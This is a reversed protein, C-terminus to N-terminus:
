GAFDPGMHKGYGAVMAQCRNWFEACICHSSDVTCTTVFAAFSRALARCLAPPYEKLATTKWQGLADRGISAAQPLHSTVRGKWVHEVFDPLNLTLISTPKPSKVGLLGQSIEHRVFGPLQCLLIALPTRWISAFHEESPPAPHELAGCGGIVYLLLMMHFSFLLLQNGVLVQRIERVALSSMGWIEEMTRLIRPGHRDEHASQVAAARAKSWTECPPGALYGIVFRRKVGEFWFRQCDPRTVDGWNRDLIVDVSVVHVVIGACDGVIADLFEQFDGPRRRGSFAHLVLRHAGFSAPRPTQELISARALEQEMEEIGPQRQQKTLVQLFDWQLPDIFDDLFSVFQQLHEFGFAQADEMTANAQLARLTNCCASWSTPQATLLDSLAQKQAEPNCQLLLETVKAYLEIDFLEVDRLRDEQPQPGHGPLPPVLGDHKHELASNETSGTGAAPAPLSPRNQLRLRCHSNVHLHAKLRGFTHYERLCAPCATTDFLWRLTSIQGHCRFMHAGEGGRSRFAKKCGLCGFFGFGQHADRDATGLSQDGIIQEDKLTSLFAAFSQQVLLQNQRQLAAHLFARRILGKWYPQHYRWLYRWPELNTAPDPMHTCTCIQKWLWQLDDVVIACWESDNHLVRWSVTGECQHLTGLYRLRVRRLLETPTPLQLAVCVEEDTWTADPSLKLLRKYLKIISTHLYGKSKIDKLHWSESGYLLRSLVLTQFLQVRRDLPLMANQFIHRRHANFTQHAMAVRRRMEKRHDGSHHLVGGLHVYEGVVSISRTSHEGVVTMTGPSNPGFFQAKSRRSGRGRLSFLLATKGKQLNPTMAHEELTDLLISSVVGARQIAAEADAARLVVTLDDMWVPGSYVEWSSEEQNGRRFPDFCQDVQIYEQLGQQQLKSHFTELVRTFLFTFVVDAFSDGPRTGVTTRCIDTQGPMQFFTDSHIAQLVQQATQTMGAQAIAPADALHAYLQHLADDPLRLKHAIRAVEEDHFDNGLALPRLVRYFAEVLDVMLLIASHGDVAAARLYARAEHLGLTVPVHRKGGLQSRLMYRELLGAQTQRITRHLAKGLHSSVLLSRYAKPDSLPGKGKHAPYLIGGKHWLSEQGHLFLKLLAGYNQRALECPCAGCLESPLQDLGSAKKRPVRRFAMELDTLTPLDTVHQDIHTRRFAALNERWLHWQTSDDLRRGGEMDGFFRIWRDLAQAPLMCIEGDEDEVIPLTKRKLHRLNTSGIHEKVTQLIMNASANGPLEQLSATLANKRARQLQHRMRRALTSLRTGLKLRWCHLTAFYHQHQEVNREVHDPSSATWAGFFARLTEQKWRRGVESLQRKCALKQNRLEWIESTIFSKKPGRRSTPCHTSLCDHLAQNYSQFHTHVDTHWAPTAVSAVGQVITERKIKNRDFSTKAHFASSTTTAISTASWALQLAVLSHDGDGNHLDFDEVVTSLLCHEKYVAPITVYDICHESAGHPARWTTHTGQHCEFTCPLCLDFSELFQRFLPTSKSTGFKTSGVVRGDFEGPAANADLMTFIPSGDDLRQLQETFSQWWSVRDAEPQGSQPAHGVVLCAHWAPCDLKVILLRPSRHMVQVDKKTLYIPSDDVYGIPQSLNLWLEVGWHGRDAGGGLRYVNGVTSCIEPCRTEQLGLFNFNFAIMQDRLLQVKGGCGNDGGYLSAVNCSGFSLRMNQLTPVANTDCPMPASEAPLHPPSIDFYTGHFSPLSPEQSLIWWFFPLMPGLRQMDVKQRTLYFSRQREQKALLDVLDNWPDGSHGRVHTTSLFEQSLTTELAQFSARLLRYSQSVDKAGHLGAGQREALVSDTCFTTPLNHNQALRWFASWFLAERESTESGISASGIHHQAGTEFLVPQATWGVFNIKPEAGCTYEEALVLFAWTDGKGREEARQPPVRRQEPLSSGDCYILLRDVRQLQQCKELAKQIHTPVDIGDLSPCLIDSASEFFAKLDELTIDLHLKCATSATSIKADDFLPQYQKLIPLREPWPLPQRTEEDTPMTVECNHFTHLEVPFNPVVFTESMCARWFGHQYLCRMHGIEENALTTNDVIFDSHVAQDIAQYLIIPPRSSASIAAPYCVAVQQQPFVACQCDQGWSRLEEEVSAQELPAPVEVFQPLSLYGVGAILRVAVIQSTPEDHVLQELNLTRKIKKTQLLNLHEEEIWLNPEGLQGRQVILTLSMGHATAIGGTLTVENDGQWLSCHRGPMVPLCIMSYGMIDICQQLAIVNPMMLVWTRPYGRAVFDDMVSVHLSKFNPNPRQVLVIHAAVATDDWYPPPNVVFFHIEESMDVRDLWTRQLLTRWELVDEFLQVERPDDCLPHHQHDNYWTMVTTSREMGGPGLQARIDWLPFLQQEFWPLDQLPRVVPHNATPDEIQQCYQLRLAAFDECNHWQSTVGRNKLRISTQLLSMSSSSHGDDSSEVDSVVTFHMPMHDLDNEVDSVWYFAELDDPEIGMQLMRAVCRTSISRMPELPPPLAIRVYDGHYLRRYIGQDQQVLMGNHWVLCTDRVSQAYLFVDMVRLMQHRSLVTPVYVPTRIWEVQWSPAPPHFEVDFLVFALRSTPPLDNSHQALLAHVGRDQLDRPPYPMRHMAQLQQRDFGAIRAINTRAVLQSVQNVQGEAPPAHVSFVVTHHWAPDDSDTESSEEDTFDEAGQFEGEQRAAEPLEAIATPGSPLLAPRTNVGAAMFSSFGDVDDNEPFVDLVISTFFPVHAAVDDIIPRGGITVQCQRYSCQRWASACEIVDRAFMTAPLIQAFQLIATRSASRFITSVIGTPEIAPVEQCLILHAVHGHFSEAPPDPSVLGFDVPLNQLIFDHWVEKITELWFQWEQDLRLMRPVTSRLARTPHLYWSCVYIIKGEELCEVSGHRDHLARLDQLWNPLTREDQGWFPTQDHDHEEQAHHSLLPAETEGLFHCNPKPAYQQSSIDNTLKRSGHSSSIARASGHRWPKEPWHQLVEHKITTSFAFIEDDLGLFLQVDDSFACRKGRPAQCIQRGQVPVHLPDEAFGLAFAEDLADISAQWESVFWSEHVARHTWKRM